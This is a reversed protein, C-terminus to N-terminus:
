CIILSEHPSIDVSHNPNLAELTQLCTRVHFFHWTWGSFGKKTLTRLKKARCSKWVVQSPSYWGSLQGLARRRGRWWSRVHSPLHHWLLGTTESKVKEMM